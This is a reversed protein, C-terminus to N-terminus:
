TPVDQYGDQGTFDMAKAGTINVEAVSFKVEATLGEYEVKVIVNGNEDANATFLARTLNEADPELEGAGDTVLVWAEATPEVAVTSGDEAKGVLTLLNSDGSEIVNYDAHLEISELEKDKALFGFCGSLALALVLVAILSINREM